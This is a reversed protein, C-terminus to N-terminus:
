PTAADFVMTTTKVGFIVRSFSIKSGSIDSLLDYASAGMPVAADIGTSFNYYRLGADSTYAAWDGSVRPNFQDGSGANITVSTLTPTAGTVPVVTNQASLHGATAIAFAALWVFKQTMIKTRGENRM